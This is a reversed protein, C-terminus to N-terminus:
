KEQTIIRTYLLSFLSTICWFNIKCGPSLASVSDNVAVVMKVALWRSQTCNKSGFSFFFFFGCVTWPVSVGSVWQCVRWQWPQSFRWEPTSVSLGHLFNTKQHVSVALGFTIGCLLAQCSSVSWMFFGINQLISQHSCCISVFFFLFFFLCVFLFVFFFLFSVLVSVFYINSAWILLFYSRSVLIKRLLLYASQNETNRKSPVHKSALVEWPSLKPPKKGFGKIQWTIDTSQSIRPM